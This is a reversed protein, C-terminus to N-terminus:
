FPLYLEANDMRVSSTRKCRTDTAFMPLMRSTFLPVMSRLLNFQQVANPSSNTKVLYERTGMKMTGAPLIPSQNTLANSIDSASVRYAYMAHPDTDVMIARQKGGYPQPVSAGEVSSL